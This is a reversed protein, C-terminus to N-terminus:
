GLPCDFSEEPSLSTYGDAFYLKRECLHKSSWQPSHLRVREQNKGTLIHPSLVLKPVTIWQMKADLNLKVGKVSHM